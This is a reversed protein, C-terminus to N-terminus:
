ERIQQYNHPYNAEFEQTRTAWVDDFSFTVNQWFPDNRPMASNANNLIEGDNRTKFSASGFNSSELTLRYNRNAQYRLWEDNDWAPIAAYHSIIDPAYFEGWNGLFEVKAKDQANAFRFAHTGAGDKHYVVMPHGGQIQIEDLRRTTFKGHASVSAHSAFADQGNIKGTWVIVTEVDHRHGGLFSLGVAQDKEFYLEFLHACREVKNAGEESAKCLQRHITNAYVGWHSYQCSGSLSATANRGPNQRLNASRDFPTAPYCGDSDFDFVPHFNRVQRENYKSIASDWRALEDARAAGALLALLSTSLVAFTTKWGRAFNANSVDFTPHM